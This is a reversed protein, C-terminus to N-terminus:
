AQNVYSRRLVGPTETPKYGFNAYMKTLEEDTKPQGAYAQVWLYLVENTYALGVARLLESALRHGRYASKVWLNKVWYVGNRKEVTCEAATEGDADTISFVDQRIIASLEVTKGEQNTYTSM